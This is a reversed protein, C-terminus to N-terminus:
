FEFRSLELKALPLILYSLADLHTQENNKKLKASTWEKDKSVLIIWSFSCCCDIRPLASSSRLCFLTAILM